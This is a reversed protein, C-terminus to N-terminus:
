GEVAAQLAAKIAPYDSELLTRPDLLVHGEAVRVIIPPQSLRLRVALGEAGLPGANLAVLSTPLKAGPFSGGGVASEGPIVQPLFVPPCLGALVRARRDLEAEDLTLMRLVPIERRAVEPDHYLGLTAELAALTFRDARLARALPNARCRTIIGRKGVLCGAQPGGLLKDGSFIVLDAGASV